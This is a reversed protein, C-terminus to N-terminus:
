ITRHTEQPTGLSSVWSSTNRPEQTQWAIAPPSPFDNCTASIRTRSMRTSPSNDDTLQLLGLTRRATSTVCPPPTTEAVFLDLKEIELSPSLQHPKLFSTPQQMELVGNRSQQELKKLFNSIGGGPPPTQPVLRRAQSQKVSPSIVLRSPSQSRNELETVLSKRMLPRMYHPDCHLQQGSSHSVELKQKHQETIAVVERELAASHNDHEKTKKQTKGGLRGFLSRM